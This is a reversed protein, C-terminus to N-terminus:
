WMLLCSKVFLSDLELYNERVRSSMNDLIVQKLDSEFGYPAVVLALKHCDRIFKSKM